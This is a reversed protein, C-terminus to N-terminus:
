EEQNLQWLSRLEVQKKIKQATLNQLNLCPEPGMRIWTMELLLDIFVTKNCNLKTFLLYVSFVSSQLIKNYFAVNQTEARYGFSKPINSGSFSYLISIRLEAWM